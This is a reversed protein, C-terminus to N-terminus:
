EQNFIPTHLMLQISLWASISLYYITSHEGFPARVFANVATIPTRGTKEDTGRWVLRVM